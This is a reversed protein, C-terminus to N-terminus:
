QSKKPLYDDMDDGESAAAAPAAPADAPPPPPAEHQQEGVVNLKAGLYDPMARELGVGIVRDKNFSAVLKGESYLSLMESATMKDAKVRFTGHDTFVLHNLAM